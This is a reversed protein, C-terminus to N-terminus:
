PQAPARYSARQRQYTRWLENEVWVGLLVHPRLGFYGTLTHTARLRENLQQEFETAAIVIPVPPQKPLGVFYGVNPLRRLYWPVPWYYEDVAYVQVVTRLGLPAVAAVQEIRAGLDVVDPVPHAYAWPNRGDTAFDLNLRWAQRALHAAGALVALAVLVPWVRGHALKALAAVAIGALLALGQVMTLVCWPTKYPVASYIAVLVLTYLALFRALAPDVGAAELRARRFSAVFGVLALGLLLGETWVPGRGRHCYALTSLYYHWPHDHLDTAGARQLWVLYARAIDLPGAPNTLFSLLLLVGVAALGPWWLRRRAAGVAPLLAIGAALMSFVVTEKTAIGLGACIGAAVANRPSDFVAARYGFVIAGLVFTNLLTEQIYYRSYYVMVPSVAVLLAATLAAPWGLGRALGGVLLLGLAGALVTVLRFRAENTDRISRPGFPRFLPYTAFILTPGHFENPDYDYRGTELLIGFKAAHVAEDGHFPREALRPLRLALGAALVVLLGVVGWRATM